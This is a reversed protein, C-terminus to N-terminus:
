KKRVRITYEGYAQEFHPFVQIYYENNVLAEFEVSIHTIGESNTECQSAILEATADYIGIGLGSYTGRSGFCYYTNKGLVLTDAVNLIDVIYSEGAEARFHYWDTDGITTSYGATREAIVSTLAADAGISITAANPLRNNPELTVTDRSTGPEDHQPLVRISYIGTATDVHPFVRIYYVGNVEATFTAVNHVDGAGYPQCSNTVPDLNPAFIAFGLGSYNDRDNYCYYDRSGLGLLDDVNFLEVVYTSGASANFQYWDNDAYEAIINRAHEEISSTIAYEYGPRIPFANASANNPEFVVEQWTAGEDHKVTVRLSYDGAIQESHPFVEVVHRGDVKALFSLGSFTNGGRNQECQTAIINDGPDYVTLGLGKYTGSDGHCYYNETSLGLKSDVDFLEVVYTNGAAVDIAYYDRDNFAHIAATVPQDAGITALDQASILEDNPEQETTPTVDAYLSINTIVDPLNFGTGSTGRLDAREVARVPAVNVSAEVTDLRVEQLQDPRLSVSKNSINGTTAKVTIDADLTEGPFAIDFKALGNEDIYDVFTEGGAILLVEASNIPQLDIKNVVRVIVSRVDENLSRLSFTVNRSRSLNVIEEHVQYGTAESVLRAEEFSADATFTAIGNSDTTQKLPIEGGYLLIVSARSIPTGDQDAVRVAISTEGSAGTSIGPLPLSLTTEGALVNYWLYGGGICLATLGASYLAFRVARRRLAIYELLIGFGSLAVTLPIFGPEFWFWAAGALLVIITLAVLVVGVRSGAQKGAQKPTASKSTKGKRRTRKKRAKREEPASTVIPSTVEAEGAAEVPTDPASATDNAFPTDPAALTNTEDTDPTEDATPAPPAPAPPPDDPLAPNQQDDNKEQMTM